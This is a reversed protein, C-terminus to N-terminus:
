SDGVEEGHQHEQLHKGDEQCREPGCASPAMYCHDSGTDKRYFKYTIQMMEKMMGVEKDRPQVQHNGDGEVMVKRLRIQCDLTPLMNNPFDEM